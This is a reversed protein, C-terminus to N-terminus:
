WYCNVTQISNEPIKNTVPASKTSNDKFNEKPVDNGNTSVMETQISETPTKIDTNDDM